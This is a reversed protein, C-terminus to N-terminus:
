IERKSRIWGEEGGIQRSNETGVTPSGRCLRFFSSLISSLDAAVMEITTAYQKM